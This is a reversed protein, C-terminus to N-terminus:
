YSTPGGEAEVVAHCRAPMSAVFQGLEDSSISDWAERIARRLTQQSIQRGNEFEPYRTQIDDKMSKWVSETLNLDPSFPPWVIPEVGAQHLAEMTNRASHCAAGDQMLLISLNAGWATIIRPLFRQCHTEM